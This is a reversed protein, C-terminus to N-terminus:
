RGVFTPKRKEVFASLAERHDDTAHALPQMAASIDLVRDLATDQAFTMLKKTMRVAHPPNAAIRAAIARATDLLESDDVVESVLGWALTNAM